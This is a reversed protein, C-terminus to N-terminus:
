VYGSVQIDSTSLLAFLTLLFNLVFGTGYIYIHYLLVNSFRNNIQMDSNDYNIVNEEM